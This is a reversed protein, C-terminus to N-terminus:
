EGPLGSRPQTESDDAYPSYSPSFPEPRRGEERTRRRFFALCFAQALVVVVGGVAWCMMKVSASGRTAGSSVALLNGAAKGAMTMWVWMRARKVQGRLVLWQGAGVVAGLVLGTVTWINDRSGAVSWGLADGVMWGLVNGLSAAATTAVPWAWVHRLHRRLAVWQAAGLGLGALAGSIAWATAVSGSDAGMTQHALNGVASGAMVGVTGGLASMWIFRWLFQARRQPAVLFVDAGAPRTIHARFEQASRPREEATMSLGRMIADSVVLPVDPRIESPPFVPAGNNVRAPADPPPRGTILHYATAALAYIDTAPGLRGDPSYQELPAYGHTLVVTRTRVADPLLQRASGFDILVVQGDPRRILNQPKLDRHLLGAEHVVSLAASAQAILGVAEEVPLRGGRHILYRDLTEGEVLDMVLYVTNNEEFVAHVVVIGPHRLMALRRGEELARARYRALAEETWEAGATLRQGVRVCGHPFFEKIAVPRHLASDRARYTIAFGGAALCSEIVYEGGRLRAGSPLPLRPDTGL